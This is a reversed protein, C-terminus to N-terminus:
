GSERGEAAKEEAAKEEAAQREETRQKWQRVHRILLGGALAAVVVFIVGTLQWTGM